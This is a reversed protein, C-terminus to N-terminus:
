PRAKEALIDAEDDRLPQLRSRVLQRAITVYDLRGFLEFGIRRHAMLSHIPEIPVDAIIRQTSLRHRVSTSLMSILGQFVGQGRYTPSVWGWSLLVEHPGYDIAGWARRVQSGSPEAWFHGIVKDDALAYLGFHGSTLKQRFIYAVSASRTEEIRNVNSWDIPVFQIEGPVARSQITVEPPLAVLYVSRRKIVRSFVSLM